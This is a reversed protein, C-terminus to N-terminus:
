VSILLYYLDLHPAYYAINTPKLMLNLRKGINIKIIYYTRILQVSFGLDFNFIKLLIITIRLDKFVTPM